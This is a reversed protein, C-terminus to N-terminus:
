KEGAQKLDADNGRERLIKDISQVYQYGVCVAIERKDVGWEFLKIVQEKKPLLDFKETIM